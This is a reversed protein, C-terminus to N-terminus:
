RPQVDEAEKALKVLLQVQVPLLADTVVLPTLLCDTLVGQANSRGTPCCPLLLARFVQLYQCGV